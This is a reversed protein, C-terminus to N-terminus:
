RIGKQDRRKKKQIASGIVGPWGHKRNSGLGPRQCGANMYYRGQAITPRHSLTVIEDAKVGKKV